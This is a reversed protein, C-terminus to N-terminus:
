QLKKLISKNTLKIVLYAPILSAHNNYGAAFSSKIGGSRLLLPYVTKGKYMQRDTGLLFKPQM